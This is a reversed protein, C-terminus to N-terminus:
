KSFIYKAFAICGLLYFALEIISSFITYLYAM